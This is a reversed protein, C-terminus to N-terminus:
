SESKNGWQVLPFIELRQQRNVTRLFASMERHQKESLSCYNNISQVNAHGSKQMIVTPAVGCDTLKQMMYKRVSTNTLRKDSSLKAQTAMTSMMKELKNQGVIQRKFWRCDYQEPDVTAPALYFPDNEKKCNDPRLSKYLKYVAVPCRSTDFQTYARPRVTRTDTITAGTRTKTKRECHELYEHGQSDVKLCVDGWTMEYHETTARMGFHITNNFWLSNLVSSPRSTGLEGCAYLKEIEEDTIPDAAMPKNGKGQSKLTIQKSKLSERLGSFAGDTILSKGYKHERLHREYSAVMGRLTSPEFDTKDHKKISYVFNGLYMDLQEADIQHIPRIEQYRRMLFNDLLKMHGSTKAETRANKTGKIFNEIDEQSNHVFREGGANAM